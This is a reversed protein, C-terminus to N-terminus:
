NLKETVYRKVRVKVGPMTYRNKTNEVYGLEKVIKYKPREEHPQKQKPLLLLTSMTIKDLFENYKTSATTGASEKQKSTCKACDDKLAEILINKMEGMEKSCYRDVSMLCKVDEVPLPPIVQNLNNKKKWSVAKESDRVVENIVVFDEDGYIVNYGMSKVGDSVTREIGPATM